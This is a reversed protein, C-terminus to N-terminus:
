SGNGDELPVKALGRLVTATGVTIVTYICLTALLVWGIGPSQTVADETRMIGQVIWPQRGVETVVWGSELAIVSLPGAVVVASLFVRSESMRRHIILAWGTWVSVALLLLGAGIMVQFAVHVVAVPPWNEVPFDELGRVEADTDGYALWSLAGPIEVAFRTERSQEDPLGGIRLPAGRKTRFQGEMAALKVPQTRAVVKAAWDGVAIQVPMLAIALSLGLIMARRNYTANVQSPGWLLMAAYYSAVFFGTVIYAAIIMHTTQVGTAPNLMAAIPEIDVPQGDDIRFGQPVNM